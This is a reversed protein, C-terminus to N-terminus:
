NKGSSGNKEGQEVMKLVAAQERLLRRKEEVDANPPRGEAPKRQAGRPTYRKRDAESYQSEEQDTREREKELREKARRIGEQKAAERAEESLVPLPREVPARVTPTPSAPSLSGDRWLRAKQICEELRGDTLLYRVHRPGELWHMGPGGGKGGRVLWAALLPFDEMTIPAGVPHLNFQRVLEGLQRLLRTDLSWLMQGPAQVILINMAELVDIGGDPVGPM